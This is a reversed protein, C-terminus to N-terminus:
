GPASIMLAEEVLVARGILRLVLPVLARVTAAPIGIVNVFPVGPLSRTLNLLAPEIVSPPTVVFKAALVRVLRAAFLTTVRALLPEMVKALPEPPAMETDTGFAECTVVALTFLIVVAPAPSAM